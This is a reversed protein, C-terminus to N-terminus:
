VSFFSTVVMIEIKIAAATEPITEPAGAGVLVRAEVGISRVLSACCSSSELPPLCAQLPCFAQLPCPPQLVSFCAQLPCFAQLPCPPHLPQARGVSREPPLWRVHSGEPM